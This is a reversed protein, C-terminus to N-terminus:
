SPANQELNAAQQMCPWYLKTYVVLSLVNVVVAVIEFAYLAPAPIFQVAAPAEEFYYISWILPFSLGTRLKGIWHAGGSVGYPSGMARLFTVWQDRMLFLVTLVLLWVAHRTNGDLTAVFVMLPLTALYFFKDM